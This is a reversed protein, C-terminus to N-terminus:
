SVLFSKSKQVSKFPDGFYYPNAFDGSASHSSQKAVYKQIQRNISALGLNKEEPLWINQIAFMQYM